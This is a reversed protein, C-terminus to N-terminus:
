IEQLLVRGALHSVLTLQRIPDVHVHGELKLMLNSLAQFHAEEVFLLAVHESDNVIQNLLMQSLPYELIHLTPALSARLASIHKLLLTQLQNLPQFEICFDQSLFLHRLALPNCKILFLPLKILLLTILTAAIDIILRLSLLRVYRNIVLVQRQIPENLNLLRELLYLLLLVDLEVM